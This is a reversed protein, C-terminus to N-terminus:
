LTAVRLTVEGKDKNVFFKFEKGGISLTGYYGGTRLSTIRFVGSDLNIGLPNEERQIVKLFFGDKNELTSIDMMGVLKFIVRSKETSTTNKVDRWRQMNKVFLWDLLVECREENFCPFAAGDKEWNRFIGILFTRVTTRGGRNRAVRGINADGTIKGLQRVTNRKDRYQQKGLAISEEKSLPPGSASWLASVEKLFSANNWQVLISDDGRFFTSLDAVSVSIKEM